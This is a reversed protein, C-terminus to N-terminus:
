PQDQDRRGSLRRIFKAMALRMLTRGGLQEAAHVRAAHDHQQTIPLTLWPLSLGRPLISGHSLLLASLSEPTTSFAAHNPDFLSKAITVGHGKAAAEWLPVLTGLMGTADPFIQALPRGSITRVLVPPLRGPNEFPWLEPCLGLAGSQIREDRWFWPCAYTAVPDSLLAFYLDKLWSQHPIDFAHMLALMETSVLQDDPIVRGQVDRATWNRGFLRTGGTDQPHLCVMRIDASAPAELHQITARHPVNLVLLTIAHQTKVPPTLRSAHRSLYWPGVRDSAVAHPRSLCERLGPEHILRNMAGALAEPTAQAVLANREHEFVGEYAPLPTIVVPTGAGYAEHLAYCFSESRSPFVAAIAGALAEAIYQRDLRGAFTIRDQLSPPIRAILASTMGGLDGSDQGILTAKIHPPADALARICAEVFLDAGKAITIGGIFLLTDRREPTRRPAPLPAVPPPSVVIRSNVGAHTAYAVSPALVYDAANLSWRELAYAIFRDRDPTTFGADADIRYLPGHLRVAVPVKAHPTGHRRNLWAWAPGCFDFFEILDIAHSPLIQELAAGFRISDQEFRSFGPSDAAPHNRILDRVRYVHCKGTIGTRTSIDHQIAAFPEPECDILLVVEHGQRLLDDTAHRVFVGCGGPTAPHFEYTVFCTTPVRTSPISPM